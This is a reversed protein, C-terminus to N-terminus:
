DVDAHTKLWAVTRALMERIAWPASFVHGEGPFLRLDTPVGRAQLLRYLVRSQSVPVRGDLEGHLFLTPTQLDAAQRVVSAADYPRTDVWPPPGFFRQTLSPWSVAGHVALWDVVPAGAVVAVVDASARACQLALTGGYSWGVMTVAGFARSAGLHAIGELVDAVDREGMRGVLGRVFADDRGTSGRPNPAFVSFGESVFHQFYASFTRQLHEAPGGHLWVLLPAGRVASPFFLGQVTEGDSAQWSVTEFPVLSRQRLPASFASVRRDGESDRLRVHQPLDGDQHLYLTRRGRGDCRAGNVFTGSPGWRAGGGSLDARWIEGDVGREVSVLLGDSGPLWSMSTVLGTVGDLLGVVRGTAVHLAYARPASLTQDSARALGAVWAGDPSWVLFGRWPVPVPVMRAKKRVSPSVWLTSDPEDGGITRPPAAIYAIADRGPAFAMDMVRAAPPTVVRPRAALDDWVWVRRRRQGDLAIGCPMPDAGWWKLATLGPPVHHLARGEGAPTAPDLVVADSVDGHHRAALLDGHVSFSPMAFVDGPQGAPAWAGDADLDAIRMVPVRRDSLGDYTPTIVVVYRGDPSLASSVIPAYALADVARVGKM